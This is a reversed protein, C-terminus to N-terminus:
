VGRVSSGPLFTTERPGGFICNAHSKAQNAEVYAGERCDECAKRSIGIALHSLHAISLVFESSVEATEDLTITGKPLDFASRKVAQRPPLPLPPYRLVASYWLPPQQLLKGQMLRTAANHVQTAVKRGM